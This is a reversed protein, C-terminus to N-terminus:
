ASCCGVRDSPQSCAFAFHVLVTDRLKMLSSRCALFVPGAALGPLPKEQQPM